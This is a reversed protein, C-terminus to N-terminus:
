EEEKYETCKYDGNIDQRIDCLFTCRNKCKVCYQKIFEKEMAYKRQKRYENDIISAVASGNRRM